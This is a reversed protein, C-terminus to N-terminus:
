KPSDDSKKGQLITSLESLDTQWHGPQEVAKVPAATVIKSYGQEKKRSNVLWSWWGGIRVGTYLCYRKWRPVDLVLMTELFIRDAETRSTTQIYYLYDHIVAANGYKGWQPLFFWLLRPVSAFDTTFGAPVNITNSSGESGIAYGFEETLRWTKGDSYPTVVLSKTFLSM